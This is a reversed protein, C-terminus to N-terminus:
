RKVSELFNGIKWLYLPRNTVHSQKERAMVNAIKARKIPVDHCAYHQFDNVQQSNTIQQFKPTTPHPQIIPEVQDHTFPRSTASRLAIAAPNKAPDVMELFGEALWKVCLERAQRPSIGLFESLATATTWKNQVFWGLVQRQQPRLERLLATKDEPFSRGVTTARAHVKAFAGAM